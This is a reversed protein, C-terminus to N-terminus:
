MALPEAPCRYDISGDPAAFPTRLAGLDCVPRREAVVQPDSLTGPLEVVRFPFGTPSVRWDSRVELTGDLAAAVARKGVAPDRKGFVDGMSSAGFGLISLELYTNGLRRYRM